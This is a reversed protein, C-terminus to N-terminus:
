HSHQLEAHLRLCARNDNVNQHAHRISRHFTPLEPDIHSSYAPPIKVVLVAATPEAMKSLAGGHSLAGIEVNSWFAPTSTALM